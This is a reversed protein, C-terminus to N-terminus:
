RRPKSAHELVAALGHMGAGNQPVCFSAAESIRQCELQKRKQWSQFEDQAQAVADLNVQIRSVHQSTIRDLEAQIVRNEDGKAAEFGRLREQLSDEHDNLARQRLIADQLLEETDMRAAELAMLLACRRAEPTMGALHASNIMDAVQLISYAARPPKVAASQYIQEFGAFKQCVGGQATEPPGFDPGTAQKWAGGQVATLVGGSSNSEEAAAETTGHGNSSFQFLRKLM